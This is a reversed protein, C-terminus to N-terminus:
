DGFANGNEGTGLTIGPQADVIERLDTYGSDEIQPTTLVTINSPTEAIPRKHREDGSSRAKYPVGPEANPNPEIPAAQVTVQSLGPAQAPSESAAVSGLPMLMAASLGLAAG